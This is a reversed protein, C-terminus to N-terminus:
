GGGQQSVRYVLTQSCNGTYPIPPLITLFCDIRVTHRMEM